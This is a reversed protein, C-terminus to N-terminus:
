LLRVKNHRPVDKMLAMLALFETAAPREENVRLIDLNTPLRSGRKANHLGSAIDTPMFQILEPWAKVLQGSTVCWALCHDLLNSTTLSASRLRCMQYAWERLQEYYSSDEYITHMISQGNRLSSAGYSGFPDYPQAEGFQVELLYDDIVMKTRMTINVLSYSGKVAMLQTRAEIIYTPITTDLMNCLASDSQQFPFEYAKPYVNRLTQVAMKIAAIDKTNLKMSPKIVRSLRNGYEDYGRRRGM